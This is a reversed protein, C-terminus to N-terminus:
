SRVATIEAVIAAPIPIPSRDEEIPQAVIEAAGKESPFMESILRKAKKANDVLDPYHRYPADLKLKSEAYDVLDRKRYHNRVRLAGLWRLKDKFNGRSKRIVGPKAKIVSAREKLWNAFARRIEPLPYDWNIAFFGYETKSLNQDHRFVRHIHIWTPLNRINTPELQALTEIHFRDTNRKRKQQQEEVEWMGHEIPWAEQRIEDRLDQWTKSPFNRFDFAVRHGSKSKLIRRAIVEALLGTKHWKPVPQYPSRQDRRWNRFAQWRDRLNQLTPSQRFYERSYEYFYCAEIESPPVSDFCWETKSLPRSRTAPSPCNAKM